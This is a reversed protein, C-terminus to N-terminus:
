KGFQPLVAAPQNKNKRPHPYGNEVYFKLDETVKKLISKMQVKLLPRMFFGIIGQTEFQASTYVRTNNDEVVLDFRNVGKKVFFPFGEVVEYTLTYKQPDFELLKEQIRGMGQIDCTRSECVQHDIKNGRGESHNLVSAWKYASSFQNGLIEWVDAVSKNIIFNAKIEM